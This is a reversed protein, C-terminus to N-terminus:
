EQEIELPVNVPEKVTAEMSAPVYVMLANPVGPPSEADALKVTPEPVEGLMVNLVEDAIAPLV